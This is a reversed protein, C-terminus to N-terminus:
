DGDSVSRLPSAPVAAPGGAASTGALLQLGRECIERLVAPFGRCLLRLRDADPPHLGHLVRVAIAYAVVGGIVALVLSTVGTTLWMCARAAIGCLAAALLLRLLGAFPLPFHLRRFLFWSGFAVGCIQIAARAWAAGILGYTPIVTFGAIISFIALVLGTAFIVDSRDMAM